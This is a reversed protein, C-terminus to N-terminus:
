WIDVLKQIPITVSYKGTSDPGNYELQLPNHKFIIEVPLTPDIYFTLGQFYIEPDGSFNHDSIVYRQISESTECKSIYKSANLITHVYNLCRYLGCVWLRGKQKEQQLRYFPALFVEPRSQLDKLSTPICKGNNRSLVGLHQYLISIGLNQYMQCWDICNLQYSLSSLNPANAGTNRFRLFGQFQSQDQLEIVDLLRDIDFYLKSSLEPEIFKNVRNKINQLFSTKLKPEKIQTVLSDTWIYEIGHQKLLDAHYACHDILDGCHYSADAGINQINQSSGHNTFVKLKVGLKDMVEYCSLAYERTFGGIKDFNGYAHNTDIWGSRLYDHIPSAWISPKSNPIPDAFYTFTSQDVSYFFISSTIELGLGQGLITPKNTNLFKMLADFVEFDFYEIDSSIAIAGEYPYPLSRLYDVSPSVTYFGQGQM